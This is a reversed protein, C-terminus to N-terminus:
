SPLWLRAVARGVMAAIAWLGTARKTSTRRVTDDVSEDDFVEIRKIVM